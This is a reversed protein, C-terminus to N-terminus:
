ERCQDSRPLVCHHQDDGARREFLVLTAPLGQAIPHDGMEIETTTTSKTMVASSLGFEGAGNDSIAEEWNVIPVLSDEFKSRIDGSGPTSSLVLLDFTDESADTSASAQLYETGSIGYKDQIYRIAIGDAGQTGTAAGGLFLVRLATRPFSSAINPDTGHLNVEAGDRFDDSDSDELLPNTGTDVMADDFSGDNTEVGDLLGDDDTDPDLPDTGTAM